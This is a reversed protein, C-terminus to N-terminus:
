IAYNRMLGIPLRYTKHAVREEPRAVGPVTDSRVLCQLALNRTRCPTLQSALAPRAGGQDACWTLNRLLV